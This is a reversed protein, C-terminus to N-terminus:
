SATGDNTNTVDTFGLTATVGTAVAYDISASVSEHKDAGTGRETGLAATKAQSDVMSVAFTMDGSVYSAGAEMYSVSDMEEAIAGAGTKSLGEGSSM